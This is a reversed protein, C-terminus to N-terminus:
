DAAGLPQREIKAKARLANVLKQGAAAIAVAHLDAAAQRTQESGTMAIPWRQRLIVPPASADDSLRVAEGPRASLVARAAAEPLAASDVITTGKGDARAFLIAMRGAYRWPQAAIQAAIQAATPRPVADASRQLLIQALLDEREARARAQFDPTREILASQAAKALLKREIVRELAADTAARDASIETGSAAAALETLLERRTVEEGDITAIVQGRPTRDCGSAGLLAACAALAARLPRAMM